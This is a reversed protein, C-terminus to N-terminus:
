APRPCTAGAAGAVHREMGHASGLLAQVVGGVCAHTARRVQARLVLEASDQALRRLLGRAESQLRREADVTILHGRGRWERLEFEEELTRVAAEPAAAWLPQPPTAITLCGGIPGDPHAPTLGRGANRRALGGPRAAPLKQALLATPNRCDGVATRVQVAVM